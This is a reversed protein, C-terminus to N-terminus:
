AAHINYVCEVMYKLDTFEDETFYITIIISGLLSLINKRYYHIIIYIYM